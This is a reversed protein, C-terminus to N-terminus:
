GSRDAVARELSAFAKDKDGLAAYVAGVNFFCVWRTESIKEIRRVLDRALDPRGAIADVYAAISMSFTADTLAITKEAARLAAEKDGRELNALGLIAYAYGYRPNLDLAHQAEAIM